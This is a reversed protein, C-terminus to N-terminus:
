RRAWRSSIIFLVFGSAVTILSFFSFIRLLWNNINDRSQYDMTHGMWLFDFVRWNNNRISQFSGLAASIYVTCAPDQFTIAWAPLPKERYEHHGDVAKLYEVSAVKAGAVVHEYAITTAEDQTLEGRVAGTAADALAHHVHHHMGEGAHGSFYNIQYVPKGAIAILQISHISDVLTNASLNRIVESPTVANVSAQLFAPSKRMTDGHVEDMNNWSFYLGSITWVLFQIGIFVGLYRHSKRIFLNKNKIM